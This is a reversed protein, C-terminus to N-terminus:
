AFSRRDIDRSKRRSLLIGLAHLLVLSFSLIVCPVDLNSTERILNLYSAEILGNRKKLDAIYVFLLAAFLVSLFSATQALFSEKIFSALISIALLWSAFLHLNTLESYPDLHTICMGNLSPYCVDALRAAAIQYGNYLGQYRAAISFLLLAIVVTILKRMFM